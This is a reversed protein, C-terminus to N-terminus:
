DREATRAPRCFRVVSRGAGPLSERDARAASDGARRDGGCRARRCPHRRGAADARPRPHLPRRLLRLIRQLRRHDHRLGQASGPPARHGLPFSVDEVPMSRWSRSDARRRRSRRSRRGADAAAQHEAHRPRRRGGAFAELIKDGEQQAVCGAVAVVPRTGTEIGMHRIEGLRTFLKEEARERVSCTNIM